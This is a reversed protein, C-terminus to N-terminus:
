IRSKIESIRKKKSNINIELIQVRRELLQQELKLAQNLTGQKLFSNVSMVFKRTEIFDILDLLSPYKNFTNITNKSISGGLTVKLNNKKAISAVSLVYSMNTESEPGEGDYSNNLDTRGITLNTLKGGENIISEINEVATITEITVGIHKFHIDDVMDMYKKMAFKTEIMPCTISTIGLDILNNIDSKAECGSIKVLYDIQNFRSNIAEFSLNNIEIGEAEFEGKMSIFNEKNITIM